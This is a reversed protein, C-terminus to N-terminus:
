PLPCLFRSPKSWGWHSLSLAVSTLCLAWVSPEESASASVSLLLELKFPRMYKAHFEAGLFPSRCSEINLAWLFILNFALPFVSTFPSYHACWETGGLCLNSLPSCRFPASLKPSFATLLPSATFYTFSFFTLLCLPPFALCILIIM